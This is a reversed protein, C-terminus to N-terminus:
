VHARGIEDGVGLMVADLLTRGKSDFAPAEEVRGSSVEAAASIASGGSDEPQGRRAAVRTAPDLPEVHVRPSENAFVGVLDSSRRTPSSHLESTHEESRM